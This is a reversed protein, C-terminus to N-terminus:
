RAALFELVARGAGLEEATLHKLENPMASPATSDPMITPEPPMEPPQHRAPDHEDLEEWGGAEKMIEQLIEVAQRMRKLNRDSLVRGAKTEWRGGEQKLGPEPVEDAPPTSADATGALPFDEHDDEVALTVAGFTVPTAAVPSPLPTGPELYTLTMHPTFGHDAAYWIGAEDLAAVVRQRLEALGPVDVPVWAPVGDEGEPFAGIGGIIGSLPESAAAVQEVVVAADALAAEDLGKGLYALTVHLEGAELGGDVAVAQAVDAPITLSVMARLEDVSQPEGAADAGDDYGDLLEDWEGALDAKSVIGSKVSLTMTHSAAGFLVQSYEFWDLDYIRRVGSKTDKRAGGPPVSYGISWEGESSEGYFKAEEYADRGAKTNLNYLARVFVAGAEAPWPKGDKTHKPLRPDGPLWEEYQEARSVWKKTDHSHIGKPRRLAITRTFAGPMIIDGVNDEIGTISVLCRVTGVPDDAAIALPSVAVSKHELQVTM